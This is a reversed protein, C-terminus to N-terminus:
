ISQPLPVHVALQPLLMSHWLASAAPQCFPPLAIRSWLLAWCSAASAALGENGSYGTIYPSGGLPRRSLLLIYMPFRTCRLVKWLWYLSTLAGGFTVESSLPQIMKEHHWPCFFSLASSIRPDISWSFLSWDLGSSSFESIWSLMVQCRPVVHDQFTRPRSEWMHARGVCNM